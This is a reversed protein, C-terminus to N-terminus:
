SVVGDTSTSVVDNNNWFGLAVFRGNGYTVTQYDATAVGTTQATWNKGDPSTLIYAQLGTGSIFDSGVVVFLGNGYTVSAFNPDRQAVSVSTWNLGDTSNHMGQYDVEVFIGNGYAVPNPGYDLSSTTTQKTWNVGDTSTAVVETGIAIFTNNIYFLSDLRTDSMTETWTQLASGFTATYTGGQVPVVLPRSAIVYNDSWRNFTYGPAPVATLQQTTGIEYTGGGLVAGGDAPSAVVAINALVTKHGYLSMVGNIDDQEIHDLSSIVSNMIAVVSQRPTALDPHDLGLVHGFEHDLVRRLDYTYNFGVSQLDGRYADWTFNTNVVVDAETNVTKSTSFLRFTVALTDTGFSQGFADSAFFVSNKGDGNSPTLTTTNSTFQVNALYLNWEDLAAQAVANWSASGDQLGPQNGLSSQIPYPYVASSLQLNMTVNGNPWKAGDLAYGDVRGIQGIFLGAVALVFLYLTRSM